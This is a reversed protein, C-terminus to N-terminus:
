KEHKMYFCKEHKVNEKIMAELPKGDREPYFARMRMIVESAGQM